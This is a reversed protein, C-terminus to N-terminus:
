SLKPDLLPVAGKWYKLFLAIHHAIQLAPVGGCIEAPTNQLFGYWLQRRQRWLLGNQEVYYSLTLHMMKSTNSEAELLKKGQLMGLLLSGYLYHETDSNFFSDQCEVGNLQFATRRM